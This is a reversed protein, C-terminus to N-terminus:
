AAGRREAKRAAALLLALAAPTMGEIRRAQGLTGPRAAALKRGLEASLGPLGTWDLDPLARAEERRLAEAEARQREIYGAYHSERELQALTAADTEALAPFLRLVAEVPVDPYSLLDMASRRIGDQNLPVGAAVAEAPTVACAAAIGRARELRELKAGFARARAEGVVGLALGEPTLRQDANDARLSLRFEARSTFMRYPETVGQTVLDDIMVGIYSTARSFVAAEEGRLARVANIGAVLGQAAAEEYGTTGNIQGALWLGAVTRVALTADLARPDVYDYEIAYGPQLIEARSLGDISRVYAEQVEAPLSTSIGNPYIRIDDHGEPELFIQHADKEAFRVVKDEISPCYRPGVGEIRGSYMASRHLNERIIEHTRANTHTIHCPVQPAEPGTSLTSFLAPEADGPQPTLRAFDISRADLRPPTGTKLRGTPLGLGRITDALRTAARDGMRGGSRREEGIHIVGGLFTGTTLVVAAAPLATGDGLIVASVRGRDIRLDAAEGEIVDLGPCAAIEAQMHRRYLARDAQARPGQVAPGKRRNLLRFQIGARDAVRGMLGDLADVERVLHGKGLGGIAPNCSMEGIRDARHTVLAVSAGMRAAAHAAEVGAHGGGIVAIDYRQKVHFM